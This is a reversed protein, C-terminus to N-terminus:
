KGAHDAEALMAKLEHKVMQPLSDPNTPLGACDFMALTNSIHAVLRAAKAEAKVLANHKELVKSQASRAQDQASDVLEGNLRTETELEAVRAKLADREKRMDHYLGLTREYAAAWAFKDGGMEDPNARAALAELRDTSADVVAMARPNVADAAPAPEPWTHKEADDHPEPILADASGPGERGVQPTCVNAGPVGSAARGLEKAEAERRAAEGSKLGYACGASLCGFGGCARTNGPCMILPIHGREVAANSCETPKMCGAADCAKPDVCLPKQEAERRAAEEDSLKARDLYCQRVQPDVGALCAYEAFARWMAGATLHAPPLKDTM